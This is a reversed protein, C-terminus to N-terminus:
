PRYLASRQRFHALVRGYYVARARFQRQRHVNRPFVCLRVTDLTQFFSPSFFDAAAAAWILGSGNLDFIYYQCLGASNYRMFASAARYRLRKRLVCYGFFRRARTGIEAETCRTRSPARAMNAPGLEPHIEMAIHSFWSDPLRATGTSSRPPPNRRRRGARLERADKGWEQYYGRGATVLLIQGGRHTHWNNRCAPAFTRERRPM